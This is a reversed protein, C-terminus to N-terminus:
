PARGARDGLAHQRRFVKVKECKTCDHGEPLPSDPETWIRRAAVFKENNWIEGFNGGDWQGFDDRKYYGM